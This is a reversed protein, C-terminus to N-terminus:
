HPIKPIIGKFYIIQTVLITCNRMLSMIFITWPHSTNIENYLVIRILTQESVLLIRFYLILMNEEGTGSERKRLSDKGRFTLVVNWLLTDNTGAKSWLTALFLWVSFCHIFDFYYLIGNKMCARAFVVTFRLTGQFNPLEKALEVATPKEHRHYMYSITLKFVLLKVHLV